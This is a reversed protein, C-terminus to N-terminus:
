AFPVCRGIRRMLAWVDPLEPYLIPKGSTVLAASLARQPDAWGITNTYGLHGFAQDTNPGFLSLVEAGLMFGLGYRTPFGLTFDIDRYSQESRARMITRPELLRVGDLEGGCRLLEFFRSLETASAVGNGAPVIGSLFRPDNSAEVIADPAKGLARTLVTSIPPVVPAGTAYCHGVLDLDEPAVGYNGFRFGLPDLIERQLVTRIDDGTVRRVVEGLIFGGSIAHYALTKGARSAPHADCLTEVILDWDGLNEIDMLHGPLNPVGARHSLVHALTIADKGNRGYGPIYDAVRDGIHLEGREDLLHVVMATIAKSASFIVFPTDTTVPVKPVDPGDSPGGGRAHGIARDLVVHGDRRVCLQLAPHVGSRYLRRASGWMAEVQDRTMGADRPDAEAGVHTVSDLDAPVRIRRLPDGVFPLRPLPPLPAM